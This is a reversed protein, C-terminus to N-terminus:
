PVPPCLVPRTVPRGYSTQEMAGVRQISFPSISCFFPIQQSQPSLKSAYLHTQLLHALPRDSSFCVQNSAIPINRALMLSHFQQLQPVKYNCVGVAEILGMDFAACAMVQHSNAKFHECFIIPVCTSSSFDMGAPLNGEAFGESLVEQGFFPFPFHM